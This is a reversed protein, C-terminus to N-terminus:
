KKLKDIVERFKRIHGPTTGCCGGIIKAGAEVLEPIRSAMQEPTERFVTKGAILEPLGANPKIWLPLGTSKKMVAAVEIMNEIGAGCNSGVLDAGAQELESVARDPTIGMM